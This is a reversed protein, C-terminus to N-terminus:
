AIKAQRSLSLSIAENIESYTRKLAFALEKFFISQVTNLIKQDRDELRGSTEKLELDKRKLTNILKAIEKRDGRNVIENYAKYRAQGDEIWDIGEFNFSDIITAAEEKKLLPLIAVKNNDVPITITMRHGNEIPHLVYYQKTVGDITEESIDDIRCIGHVSYIVQDEIKFM